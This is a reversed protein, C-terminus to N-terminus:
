MWALAAIYPLILFPVLFIVDWLAGGPVRTLARLAGLPVALVACGIVVAVGLQLTNRLLGLLEPDNLTPLFLSFAGEFRGRAVHPFIAQLLVYALPLAVLLLLAATALWLVLQQADVKLRRTDTFSYSLRSRFTSM